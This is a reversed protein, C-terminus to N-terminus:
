EFIEEETIINKNKIIKKIQLTTYCTKYLPTCKGNELKYVQYVDYQPYNKIEIIELDIVHGQVKKKIKM